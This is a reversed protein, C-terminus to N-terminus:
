KTGLWKVLWQHQKSLLKRCDEAKLLNDGYTALPFNAKMEELVKLVNSVEIVKSNGGTYTHYKLQELRKHLEGETM